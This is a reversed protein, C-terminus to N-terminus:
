RRNRGALRGFQRGVFEGLRRLKLDVQEAAEAGGALSVARFSGRQRSQYSFLRGGDVRQKEVAQSVLRVLRELYLEAVLRDIDAELVDDVIRGLAVELM